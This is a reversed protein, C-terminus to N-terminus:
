NKMGAEPKADQAAWAQEIKEALGWGKGSAMAHQMVAQDLLYDYTRRTEQNEGFLGSSPVTRRMGQFMQAMLLAEFQQAADKRTAKGSGPSPLEIPLADQGSLVGSSLLSSNM